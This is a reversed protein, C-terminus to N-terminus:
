GIPTLGTSKFCKPTNALPPHNYEVSSPPSVHLLRSRVARAGPHGPKLAVRAYALLVVNYTPLSAGIPVAMRTRLDISPPVLQVLTLAPNGGTGVVFSM